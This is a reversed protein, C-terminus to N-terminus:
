CKLSARARSGCDVSASLRRRLWYLKDLFLLFANVERLAVVFRRGGKLRDAGLDKRVGRVISRARARESRKVAFRSEVAWEM